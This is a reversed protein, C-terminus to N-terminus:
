RGVLEKIREMLQSIVDSMSALQNEMDILGSTRPVLKLHLERAQTWQGGILARIMVKLDGEKFKAHYPNDPHVAFEGGLSLEHDDRWNEYIMVNDQFFGFLYLYPTAGGMPKVKFMYSGELDLTQGDVPYVMEPVIDYADAFISFYNDSEDSVGTGQQPTFDSGEVDEIWIKYKDRAATKYGITWKYKGLSADINEAILGSAPGGFSSGYDIIWIKIKDVGTSEWTIDYTNGVVWKEGRNPSLVTISPEEATVISFYNDSEDAIAFNVSEVRVKFVNEGVAVTNPVVWSYTYQCIEPGGSGRFTPNKDIYTYYNKRSDFLSIYIQSKGIECSGQWTINYTKGKEWKEGGNPSLVTITKEEGITKTLTNNNENSEDVRGEWDIIASVTVKEGCSVGILGCTYGGTVACEGPSPVSFRYYANGPYEKGSDENRLKILFDDVSSGPGENCYKVKIYYDGDYYIDKVVLDPKEEKGIISFYDDSLDSISTYVGRENTGNIYIKYDDGEPIDSPIEWSLEGTGASNGVSISKIHANNPGHVLDVIVYDNGTSSWKITQLSGKTWKEGGNPSLVTISKEEEKKRALHQSTLAEEPSLDAYGCGHDNRAYYTSGDQAIYFTQYTCSSVKPLYVNVLNGDGLELRLNLEKNLPPTLDHFTVSLHNPEAGQEYKQYYWKKADQNAFSYAWEFVSSEGTKLNLQALRAGYAGKKEMGKNVFIYGRDAVPYSYNTISVKKIRDASLFVEKGVISFYDDSDDETLLPYSPSSASESVKVKYKDGPTFDCISGYCDGVKWSYQGLTASIDPSIRHWTVPEKSSDALFITVEDIGESSWKIDYSNGMMLKEGGDPSLVTISKEEAECGYINNLKARTTLGVFGTGHVLGWPALIESAYKEQFGVVASATYDGFYAVGKKELDPISFGEKELAIQLAQVENGADGYKLNVNFDHCWGEKEQLEALQQQLAAIQAQLAAIQIQLEEVTVAKAEPVNLNFLEVFIVLFALALVIKSIGREM